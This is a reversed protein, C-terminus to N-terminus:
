AFIGRCINATLMTIKKLSKFKIFINLLLIIKCQYRVYKESCRRSRKVSNLISVPIDVDTSLRQQRRNDHILLQSENKKQEVFKSNLVPLIRGSGLTM